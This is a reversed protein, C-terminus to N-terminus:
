RGVAPNINLWALLGIGMFGLMIILLGWAGKKALDLKLARWFETEARAAEIKAEHFNRHGSVDVTGDSNHPFARELNDVRGDIHHLTEMVEDFRDDIHKTNSDM